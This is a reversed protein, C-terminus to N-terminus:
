RGMGPVDMHRFDRANAGYPAHQFIAIVPIVGRTIEGRLKAHPHLADGDAPQGPLQGLIGFPEANYGESIKHRIQNKGRKGTRQRVPHIPQARDPKIHHNGGTKRAGYGPQGDGVQNSDFIQQHQHQGVANGHGEIIGDPQRDDM